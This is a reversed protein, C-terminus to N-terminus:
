PQGALADHMEADIGHPRPRVALHVQEHVLGTEVEVDGVDFARAVQFGQQALAIEGEDAQRHFPALAGGRRDTRNGHEIQLLCFISLLPSWAMARFSISMETGKCFSTGASGGPMWGTM